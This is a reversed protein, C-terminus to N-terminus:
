GIVLDAMDVVPRFGLSAYLRVSTPNDQDTYLCVRAGGELLMRSVGAVAASAYGHGRSGPPTYVPGVRAVGYTPANAATLHVVQGAPDEWLWVRRAEIRRMMSDADQPELPGHGDSRGAQEAAAAEFVAFWALCLDLDASTAARLRGRVGVPEVLEELIQLRTRTSTRVSRGTLRASEGAVVAASPLAGNVAQVDEGREHLARALAVAAPEPMPLVFLPHPAAAATRMAAGVVQTADRAVVWWRPGDGGPLEGDAARHAVTTVVTSVLPDAALHEGAADLFARPDDHFDLSLM